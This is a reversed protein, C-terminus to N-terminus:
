FDQPTAPLSRNGSPSPVLLPCNPGAPTGRGAGGEASLGRVRVSRRTRLAARGARFLCALPAETEGDEFYPRHSGRQGWRSVAGLGRVRDAPRLPGQHSASGSGEAWGWREGLSCVKESAPGKAQFATWGASCARTLPRITGGEGSAEKVATM